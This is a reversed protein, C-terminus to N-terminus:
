VLISPTSCTLNLTADKDRVTKSGSTIVKNVKTISQSILSAIIEGWPPKVDCNRPAVSYFGLSGDYYKWGIDLQYVDGVKTLIPYWATRPSTAKSSASRKLGGGM